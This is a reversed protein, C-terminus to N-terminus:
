NMKLNEVGIWIAPRIGLPKDAMRAVSGLAENSAMPMIYGADEKAGRVWWYFPGGDRSALARDAADGNLTGQVLSYQLFRLLEEDSVAVGAERTENRPFYKEIDDMDLLFVKDQTNNGLKTKDIIETTEIAEWETPTFDMESNLWERLSCLEWSSYWLERPFVDPNAEEYEVFTEYIGDFKTNFATYGEFDDLDWNLMKKKVLEDLATIAEESINGYRLAIINETLLLAKGEKIDLALWTYGGFKVSDGESIQDTTPPPTEEPTATPTDTPVITPETTQTAVPAEPTATAAEPPPAVPTTTCSTLLCLVLVFFLLLGTFRKLM